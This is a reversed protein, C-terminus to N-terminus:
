HITEIKCQIEHSLELRSIFFFADQNQKHSVVTAAAEVVVVVM